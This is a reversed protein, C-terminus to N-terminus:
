IHLHHLFLNITQHGLNVVVFDFIPYPFSIYISFIILHTKQTACPKAHAIIYKALDSSGTKSFFNDSQVIM